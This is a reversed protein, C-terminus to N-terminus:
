LLNAENQKQYIHPLPVSGSSSHHGKGITLQSTSLLGVFVSAFIWLYLLCEDLQTEDKVASLFFAKMVFLPM